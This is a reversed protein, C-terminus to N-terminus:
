VEVLQLSRGVESEPVNALFNHVRCPSSRVGLTGGRATTYHLMFSCNDVSVVGEVLLYNPNSIFVFLSYCSYIVLM